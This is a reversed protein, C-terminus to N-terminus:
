GGVLGLMAAGIIGADNSFRAPRLRADHAISKLLRSQMSRRAPELLYEGSKATGGGVIVLHLDCLNMASALAAGLILGTEALFDRAFQDGAVAAEHLLKPDLEHGAAIM